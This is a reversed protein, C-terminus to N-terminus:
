RVGNRQAIPPPSAQLTNHRQSLIYSQFKDKNSAPSTPPFPVRSTARPHRAARFKLKGSNGCTASQWGHLTADVYQVQAYLGVENRFGTGQSSSRGDVLKRNVPGSTQFTGM